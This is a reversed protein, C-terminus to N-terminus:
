KPLSCAQASSVLSLQLAHVKVNHCSKQDYLPHWWHWWDPNLVPQPIPAIPSYLALIRGAQGGGVVSARYPEVM